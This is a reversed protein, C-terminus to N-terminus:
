PRMSGLNMHNRCRRASCPTPHLCHEHARVARVCLAHASATLMQLLRPVLEPPLQGAAESEAMWDAYAALVLAATYRLLPFSDPLQPLSGLLQLLLANGPPPAKSRVNTVRLNKTALAFTFLCVLWPLVSSCNRLICVNDRM